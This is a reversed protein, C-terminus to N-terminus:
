AMRSINYIYFGKHTTHYCIGKTGSRPTLSLCIESNLVLRIYMTVCQRLGMQKLFAIIIIWGKIKKIQQIFCYPGQVVYPAKVHVEAQNKKGVKGGVTVGDGKGEEGSYGKIGTNTGEM